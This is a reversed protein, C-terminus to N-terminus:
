AAKRWSGETAVSMRRTATDFHAQEMEIGIFRRGLRCAAVGTTGSGMFPDLITAGPKSFSGILPEIIEVAKQTPHM